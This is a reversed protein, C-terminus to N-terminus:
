EKGNEKKMEEILCTLERIQNVLEMVAESSRQMTM